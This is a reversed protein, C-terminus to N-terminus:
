LITDSPAAFYEDAGLQPLCEGTTSVQGWQSIGGLAATTNVPHEQLCSRLVVQADKLLSRLIRGDDPISQLFEVVAVAAYVDQLRGRGARRGQALPMRVCFDIPLLSLSFRFWALCATGLLPTGQEGRVAKLDAFACISVMDIRLLTRTNRAIHQRGAPAHMLNVVTCDLALSAATVERPTRITM